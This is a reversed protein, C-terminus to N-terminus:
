FLHAIALEVPTFNLHGECRARSETMLSMVREKERPIETETLPVLM